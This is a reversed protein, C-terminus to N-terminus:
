SRCRRRREEQLSTVPETLWAALHLLGGILFLVPVALFFTMGPTIEQGFHYVPACIWGIFLGSSLVLLMGGLLHRKWAILTPITLLFGPFILYCVFFGLTALVFNFPSRTEYMFGHTAEAALGLLPAAIWPLLCVIRAAWCLRSTGKSPEIGPQAAPPLATAEPLPARLFVSFKSDNMDRM